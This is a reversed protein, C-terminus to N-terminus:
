EGACYSRWDGFPGLLVQTWMDIKNKSWGFAMAQGRNVGVTMDNLELSPPNSESLMYVPPHKFSHAQNEADVIM